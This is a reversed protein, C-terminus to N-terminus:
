SAEQYWGKRRENQRNLSNILKDETIYGKDVLIAGIRGGHENQYNLAESLQQGTIIGSALMIEGIMFDRNANNSNINSITNLTVQIDLYEDLKQQTIYEKKILIEGIKGGWKQQHELAEDLQEGAIIGSELIIEGILRDIKRESSKASPIFPVYCSAFILKLDLWFSQNKIYLLDYRLKNNPTTNYHGHLQALGTLGPRVLLRTSFKPIVKTFSKTLEPREPRPGVFSMDGKLINYLQPLEDLKTDRLFRGVRTVRHDQNNAWVPGTKTEADRIMSRFKYVFFEKGYKGLRKQSFIIPTGDTILIALAVLVFLPSLIMLGIISLVIDFSRKFVPEKVSNFSTMREKDRIINNVFEQQSNETM